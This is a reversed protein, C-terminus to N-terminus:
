FFLMKIGFIILAIGGIFDSFKSIYNIKHISRCIFSALLCMFFTIIGIYLTYSFLTPCLKLNHFSTFGIVLADISVSIGLIIPTSKKFLITNEKNSFGDILMMLGVVIMVLGGFISPISAIYTDFFYGLVGGLFSFLFQFFSFSFIYLLLLKKHMSKNLGVSLTVGFADMALSLGLLTLLYFNM